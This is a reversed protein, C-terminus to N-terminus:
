RMRRRRRLVLGGLALLALSAPEPTTSKVSHNAGSPHLETFSGGPGGGLGAPGVPWFDGQMTTGDLLHNVGDLLIADDPHFRTWPVNNASLQLVDSFIIPGNLAGIRVDFDVNLFSDFTGGNPDDFTITMQGTSPLITDLTIFHFDLGAGLNIPDVSVLQLAVLEIDIPAATDPPPASPVSAPNLREVITDTAGTDQVGITGGFDLPGLPVGEWPVGAFTTPQVTEFLDWGTEVTVQAHAANTSALAVLVGAIEPVVVRSFTQHRM